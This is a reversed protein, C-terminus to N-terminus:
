CSRNSTLHENMPIPSPTRSIPPPQSAQWELLHPDITPQPLDANASSLLGALSFAFNEPSQDDVMHGSGAMDLIGPDRSSFLNELSSPKPHKLADFHDALHKSGTWWTMDAEPSPTSRWPSSLHGPLLFGSSSSQPVTSPGPSANAVAAEATHSRPGSFPTAEQEGQGGAAPLGRCCLVCDVSCSGDDKSTCDM